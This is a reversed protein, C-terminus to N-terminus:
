VENPTFTIRPSITDAKPIRGSMFAVPVVSDEHSATASVALLAGASSRASPQAPYVLAPDIDVEFAPVLPPALEGKPMNVPIVRGELSTLALLLMQSGSNSPAGASIAGNSILCSATTATKSRERVNGAIMGTVTDWVGTGYYSGHLAKRFTAYEGASAIPTTLAVTGTGDDSLRMARLIYGWKSQRLLRLQNVGPTLPFTGDDDTGYIIGANYAANWSGSIYLGVGVFIVEGKRYFKLWAVLTGTVNVGAQATIDILEIMEGAPVRGFYGEETDGFLLTQPGPGSNPYHKGTGGATLMTELM